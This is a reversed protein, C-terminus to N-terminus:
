EKFFIEELEICLAHYIPLHFEQVEHTITSPAKITLDAVESCKSDNQGTLAITKIGKAKACKLANVVNKSNGSTSFGMAVDNSKALAWIQQAFAYDPDVDNSFASISAHMTTLSIAALGGQLKEGMQPDIAAFIKKEASSLPRKSLFGKQLEGCLHEADASSGGNGFTLLKAEKRFCDELMKIATIIESEIPQLTPYRNLINSKLLTM